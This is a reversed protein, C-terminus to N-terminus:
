NSAVAQAALLPSVKTWVREPAIRTASQVVSFRYTAGADPAAAPDWEDFQGEM